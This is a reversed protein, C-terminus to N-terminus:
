SQYSNRVEYSVGGKLKRAEIRFTEKAFDAVETWFKMREYNGKAKAEATKLEYMGIRAAIIRMREKVILKNM